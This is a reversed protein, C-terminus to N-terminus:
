CTPPRMGRGWFGPSGLNPVLFGSIRFGSVSLGVGSKLYHPRAGRSVLSPATTRKRDVSLRLPGSAAATLPMVSRIAARCPEIDICCSQSSPINTQLTTRRSNVRMIAYQLSQELAFTIRQATATPHHAGNKQRRLPSSHGTSAHMHVNISVAVVLHPM